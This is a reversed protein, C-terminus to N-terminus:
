ALDEKRRQLAQHAWEAVPHLRATFAEFSFRDLHEPPVDPRFPEPRAVLEGVLHRLGKGGDHRPDPYLFGSRGDLVTETFPPADVASVPIGTAQAELINLGLAEKEPLGSLLYDIQGYVTAIDHQHGWFRVRDGMPQLARQLDRVSTYGGSGFVELHLEPYTALIPAIIAFLEPFQKITTLRSVIGLTIGPRRRFVPRQVCREYLPELAAALRERLKRPDWDYRSTQRITVDSGFGKRRRLDAVGYLPDQWPVIGADTLGDVVYRSVGFVKDYRGFTGIGRGQPPMHCIGTLLHRGACTDALASPLSGHSLVWHPAEKLHRTLEEPSRVPELTTDPPLEFANWFSPDPGCYLTTPIGLASLARCLFATYVEGGGFKQQPNIQLIRM